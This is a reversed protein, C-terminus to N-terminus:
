KAKAFTNRWPESTGSRCISDLNQIEARVASVLPLPNGQTRVHLIQDSRYDQKFPIYIGPNPSEAPITFKVTSTVGVVERVPQSEDDGNGARFRRGIASEGPWFKEAMTNNIIVVPSSNEDDAETFTRGELIPMGMTKFYDANVINYFAWPISADKELVKGEEFIDRSGNGFGIPLFRGTSASVVGPMSRVRELLERYYTRGRAEDYQRIEPDMAMLLQNEISFGMEIDITNRTTQVFLAASILLVLSVAVQSVVLAGRLIHRSSGGATTRGGEKLTVALDTRSAQFAPVLGSIIGTLVSIVLAYAFVNYDLVFEIDLPLDTAPRFASLANIAWQAFFMGMAAGLLALLISEVLLQRIIQLRGAGLAARIAIEKQRGTARALLLNTVNACAILLVLGVLTMFVKAISPMYAVASPEMRVIPEPHVRARQGSHVEPFEQALRAAHTAVAANAASLSVGPQLRSVMTFGGGRRREELNDSSNPYIYDIGTIPIYAAIAFYTSTGRFEEPLVGIITFPNSNIRVMSGIASTEGGFRRQWYDYGLVIVNGKGMTNAEEETFTRGHIAEVGLMDFYNGTVVMPLLRETSGGETSLQAFTEYYGISESFVDLLEGYDKLTRYSLNYPFGGSEGDILTISVLESPNEAGPLPRFILSYVVSFIATNAGIGLALTLVAIFTFGPRKVLMRVGYRFDKWLNSM